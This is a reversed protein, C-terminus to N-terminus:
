EDPYLDRLIDVAIQDAIPKTRPDQAFTEWTPARHEPRECTDEHAIYFNIEEETIKENTKLKQVLEDFRDCDTSM